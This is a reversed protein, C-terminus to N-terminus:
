LIRQFIRFRLINLSSRLPQERKRLKIMIHPKETLFSLKWHDILFHILSLV